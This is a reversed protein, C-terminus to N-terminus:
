HQSNEPQKYRPAETSGTQNKSVPNLNFVRRNGKRRQKEKMEKKIYKLVKGGSSSAEEQVEFTCTATTVRGNYISTVSYTKFPKTADINFSVNAVSCSQNTKTPLRHCPLWVIGSSFADEKTNVMGRLFYVAEIICCTEKEKGDREKRVGRIRGDVGGDRERRRLVVSADEPIRRNM